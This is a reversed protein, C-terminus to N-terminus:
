MCSLQVARKADRDWRDHLIESPAVADALRIDLLQSAQASGGVLTDVFQKQFFPITSDHNQNGVSKPAGVVFRGALDSFVVIGFKKARLANIEGTEGLFFNPFIQLASYGAM